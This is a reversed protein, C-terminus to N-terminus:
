LHTGTTSVVVMTLLENISPQKDWSKPILKEDLTM